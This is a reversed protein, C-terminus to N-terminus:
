ADPYKYPVPSNPNGFCDYGHEAAQQPDYKLGGIEVWAHPSWTNTVKGTPGQFYGKIMVADEYGIRKAMALLASAYSYCNGRREKFMNIAYWQEFTYGDPVSGFVAKYSCQQMLWDYCARLKQEQTMSENTIQGLVQMVYSDLEKEAFTRAQLGYSQCLQDFEASDAFGNFVYYRSNNQLINVWNDLGEDDWQRDLFLEYMVKVFEEDSIGSHQFETSFVFGYAAEKATNAGGLLQSCWANLGDTDADRGLCLRYCRVVFKTVNENMDMPATLQANGREIGYSQCIQTFEDSEVFGKFVWLRSMGSDLVAQWQAMGPVDGERNLCTRYLVQLYETDSLNKAKFEPSDIFGQAVKAGQETGNLLNATWEELGKEDAPRGLVIEYLRRVFGRVMGEQTNEKIEEQAETQVVTEDATQSAYAPIGTVLVAAAIFGCLIHHKM